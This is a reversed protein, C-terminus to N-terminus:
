GRENAALIDVKYGSVVDLGRLGVARSHFSQTGVLDDNLTSQRAIRLSEALNHPAPLAADKRKSVAHEAALFVGAVGSLLGKEGSKPVQTPETALRFDGGPQVPNRNVLANGPLSARFHSTLRCKFVFSLGVGPAKDRRQAVRGRAEGFASLFRCGNTSGYVTQRDLQPLPPHHFLKFFECKALNGLREFHRQTRDLAPQIRRQLLQLHTQLLKFAPISIFSLSCEGAQSRADSKIANM